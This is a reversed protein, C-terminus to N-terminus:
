SARVWTNMNVTAALINRGFLCANMLVAWEDTKLVSTLPKSTDFDDGLRWYGVAGVAWLCATMIPIVIYTCRMFLTRPRQM